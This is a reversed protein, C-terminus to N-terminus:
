AGALVLDAAEIGLRVAYNLGRDEPYIQSMGALFLGQAPTAIDPKLASYHLPVVPQAFRSKTLAVVGRYAPKSAPFVNFLADEFRATIDTDSAHWLADGADLYRSLYLLHTGYRTADILNTQEVLVVFPLDDCVTTWYYPSVPADFALLLCINAKYEAQQLKARYAGLDLSATLQDFVPAAVAGIVRAARHVGKATAIEFGSEKSERIAEVTEDTRLVAGHKALRATLADTLCGFGGDMYGLMEDKLGDRSAGRLKFKNWIWVASVREADDGFKSVLLPRWLREYASRGAKKILYEAASTQELKQWHKVRKAALVTLGTRIRDPLTVPRFALLDFPTTFPYLMGGSLLGNAPKHWHLSDALGLSELLEILHTDSAFCHHYIREVSTHGIPVDAALGGSTAASDALYVSKGAEALRMAAVLGTLGHGIIFVDTDM